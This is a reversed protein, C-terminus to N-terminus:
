DFEQLNIVKPVVTRISPDPLSSPPSTDLVTLNTLTREAATRAAGFVGILKSSSM